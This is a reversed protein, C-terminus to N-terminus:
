LVIDPHKLISKSEPIISNAKELVLLAQISPTAELIRIAEQYASKVEASDRILSDQGPMNEFTPM